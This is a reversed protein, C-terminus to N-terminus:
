EASARQRVPRLLLPSGSLCHVSAQSILQRGQGMFVLKDIELALFTQRHDFCAVALATLSILPWLLRFVLRDLASILQSQFFDAHFLLHDSEDECIQELVASFPGPALRRAIVQYFSLGVVEAAMLVLLKFRIGMLRRLATFLTDSWAKSLQPADLATVLAAIIRAHRAEEAVFLGLADGYATTIGPGRYRRIQRAIRGEDAEGVQFIALSRGLCRRQFATLRPAEAQPLQRGVRVRFRELWFPWSRHQSSM